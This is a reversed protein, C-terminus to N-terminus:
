SNELNLSLELKSYHKQGNEQLEFNRVHQWLHKNFVAPQEIHALRGCNPLKLMRAFPLIRTLHASTSHVAAHDQDGVILLTPAAVRRMRPELRKFDPPDWEVLKLTWALGVPDHQEMIDRYKHWWAAKERILREYPRQKRLAASALAVENAELALLAQRIRSRHEFLEL